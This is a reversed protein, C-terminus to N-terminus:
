NSNQFKLVLEWNFNINICILLLLYYNFLFSFHSQNYNIDVVIYISYIRYKQNRKNRLLQTVIFISKISQIVVLSRTSNKFAVSGCANTDVLAYIIYIFPILKPFFARTLKETESLSLSLSLSIPIIFSHRQRQRRDEQARKKKKIITRRKSNRDFLDALSLVPHRDTQENTGPHNNTM